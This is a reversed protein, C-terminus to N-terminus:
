GSWHGTAFRVTLFVLLCAFAVLVIRVRRSRQSAVWMHLPFLVALFRDFSALPFTTSFTSLPPVLSIAAYLGYISPLTSLAGAVGGAAFAVFGFALVDGGAATLSESGAGAMTLVGRGAASAGCVLGAVPGHFHRGWHAQAHWSALPDGLVVLCYGLYILLGSPVLLLWLADRRVRYRPHWGAGLRDPQRDERPGYFYFVLLPILLLIGTNRTDSALAAAVAGWPWRGLRAWYFAAVSLLLFLGETYVASFFLSTPFLAVLYVTRTAAREGLELRALRWLLFLAGAFSAQSILIGAIVSSGIVAGGPRVLLPYLPFFASSARDEAYGHDAIGLYWGADFRLAPATLADGVHGLGSSPQPSSVGLVLFAATGVVWILLRSGILARAPPPLWRWTEM